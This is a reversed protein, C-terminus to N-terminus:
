PRPHIPVVRTSVAKPRRHRLAHPLAIGTGADARLRHRTGMVRKRWARNAWGSSQRLVLLNRLPPYTRPRVRPPRRGSRRRRRFEPLPTATAPATSGPASLEVDELELPRPRTAHKGCVARGESSEHVIRRLVRDGSLNMRACSRHVEIEDRRMARREGPVLRPMRWHLWTPKRARRHIARDPRERTLFRIGASRTFRRSAHGSGVDDWASCMRGVVRRGIAQVRALRLMERRAVLDHHRAPGLV